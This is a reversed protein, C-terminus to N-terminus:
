KRATVTNSRKMELRDVILQGLMKGQKNGEELDFRYHIGGYMRSLSAEWAAQRFSTFSRHPIGFEIESTDKYSFNDGYINTMVEAAAASIVSHGSVYSPLSANSYIAAM